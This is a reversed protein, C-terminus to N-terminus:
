FFLNDNLSCGGPTKSSADFTPRAPTTRSDLKFGIDWPITYSPESDVLTKEEESLNSYLIIHGKDILKKFGKSIMSSVTPDAGYKRCVDKLRRVAIHENNTINESPDTMFALRAVAQGICM